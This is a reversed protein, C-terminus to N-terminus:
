VAPVESPYDLLEFVYAFKTRILVRAEENILPLRASTGVGVKRAPLDLQGADIGFRIVLAQLEQLINEYRLVRDVLLVGKDSSYMRYNLRALFRENTLRRVIRPSVQDDDAPSAAGGANYRRNSYLVSSLM